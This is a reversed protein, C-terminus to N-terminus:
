IEEGQKELKEIKRKLMWNEIYLAAISCLATAATEHEKTFPLVAGHADMANILQLVGIVDGESVVMPMVLMSQTRYHNMRDYDKTGTFDFENSRYVDPINLRKQMMACYACVYSRMMPVPPIMSSGTRSTMEVYKSKTYVHRFVLQDGELTYLTGGDCNTITMAEKLILEFLKESGINTSLLILLKELRSMDYKM